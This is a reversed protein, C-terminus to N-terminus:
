QPHHQHPPHRYRNCAAARTTGLLDGIEAWSLNHDRARTVAAPLAAQIQRHLSALLHLTAAPDDLCYAPTHRRALATLADALVDATNHDLTPGIHHDRHPSAM